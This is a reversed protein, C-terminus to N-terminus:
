SRKSELYLHRFHTIVSEVRTFIPIGQALAADYEGLAGQSSPWRPLLLVGDSRKMVELSASKITSEPIFEGDELALWYAFDSAPCFVAFGARILETAARLGARVNELFEIAHNSKGTPTLPGAIYILKM